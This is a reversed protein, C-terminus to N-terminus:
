LGERDYWKRPKRRTVRDIGRWVLARIIARLIYNLM